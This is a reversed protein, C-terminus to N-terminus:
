AAAKWAAQAAADDDPMETGAFLSQWQLRDVEWYQSGVVVQTHM